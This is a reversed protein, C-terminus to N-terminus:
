HAALPVTQPAILPVALPSEQPVAVWALFESEYGLLSPEPSKQLEGEMRSCSFSHNEQKNMMRGSYLHNGVLVTKKPYVIEQVICYTFVEKGWPM